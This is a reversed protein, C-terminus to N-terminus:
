EDCKRAADYQVGGPAQATSTMRNNASYNAWTYAVNAGSQQQCFYDGGGSIAENSGMQQVRNGVADYSWCYNTSANGPQSNGM